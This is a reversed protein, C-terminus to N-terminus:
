KRCYLCSHNGSNENKVLNSCMVKPIGAQFIRWYQGKLHANISMNWLRPQEANAVKRQVLFRYFINSLM